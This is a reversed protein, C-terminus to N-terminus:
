YTGVSHEVWEKGLFVTWSWMQEHCSSCFGKVPLRRGWPWHHSDGTNRRHIEGVGLLFVDTTSRSQGCWKEWSKVWKSRSALEAFSYLQPGFSSFLVGLTISLTTVIAWNSLILCITLHETSVIDFHSALIQLPSSTKSVSSSTPFFIEKSHVTRCCTRAAPIIKM